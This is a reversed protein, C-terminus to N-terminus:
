RMYHLGEVDDDEADDDDDKKHGHGEVDDDDKKHGHGEVDDDDKKHGHGEVDDDSDDRYRFQHGETDQEATVGPTQNQETM